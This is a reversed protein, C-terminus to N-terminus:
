PYREARELTTEVRGMARGVKHLAKWLTTLDNPTAVACQALEVSAKVLAFTPSLVPPQDSGARLEKVHAALVDLDPRWDRTPTQPRTAQPLLADAPLSDIIRGQQKAALYTEKLGSSIGRGFFLNYGQLLGDYIIKGKFPLLVAKVFVPLQRHHFMEQFADHLALVAYVKDDSAIFIAHTKLLREIYFDGAQYHKWTAILALTEESFHQPNEQLFADILDVHEYLAQRVQLKHDSPCAIYAPLTDVDPVIHLRQHVFFQLPWMLTYFLDADQRSLKM